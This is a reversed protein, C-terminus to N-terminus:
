SLHNIIEKFDANSKSLKEM